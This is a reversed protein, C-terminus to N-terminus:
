LQKNLLLIAFPALNLFLSDEKTNQITKEWNIGYARIDLQGPRCHMDKADKLIQGNHINLANATLEKVLVKWGDNRFLNFYTTFYEETEKDM